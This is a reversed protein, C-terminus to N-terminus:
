INIGMIMLVIQAICLLVFVAMGANLWVTRFATGQPLEEEAPRFILKKVSLLFLVLGTIFLLLIIIAVLAGMAIKNKKLRRWADKWYTTAENMQDIQEKEEQTAPLFDAPDFPPASKIALAQLIRDRTM